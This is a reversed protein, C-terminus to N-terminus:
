KAFNGFSYSVSARQLMLYNKGKYGTAITAIKFRLPEASAKQQAAILELTECNLLPLSLTDINRGMADFDFYFGTKTKRLFGTRDVIVGDSETSLPRKLEALNITRKPTLLALVDDPIIQEENPDVSAQETQSPINVDKVPLYSTLYVYNTNQYTTFKGWIRFNKNESNAISALKDLTSSPLIEASANAQLIGRGDSVEEFPRFSWNNGDNSVVRGDIGDIVLGDRLPIPKRLSAQSSVAALSFILILVASLMKKM